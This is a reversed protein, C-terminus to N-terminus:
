HITKEISNLYDSELTAYNRERFDEYTEDNVISLIECALLIREYARRCFEEFGEQLLYSNLDM